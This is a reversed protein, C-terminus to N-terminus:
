KRRAEQPSPDPDETRDPASMEPIGQLLLDEGLREIRLDELRVADSLRFAGRGEFIPRADAGGMLKPAFFLLLRDIWGGRLMQASLGSGGEVLLSIVKEEALREMLASLDVKGGREPLTWVEAGRGVIESFRLSSSGEVTAIITRPGVSELLRASLPIRLHTDLVIRIPDRRGRIRATLLPNDALVTGIGVLVADAEARLRHVRRRAKEGTIWRSSGDPAAIWGDLTAAVKLMVFPRGREVFHTYAANLRKAELEMTGVEVLIGNKRLLDIGRGSVERQPDEMAVVARILGSQILMPTCPPTRKRLHCCPELNVYLTAGRAREGAERLALVEAHPEGAAPHFGEGVIRGRRVVVAGVMPNPSTKGRARAALSLARRM